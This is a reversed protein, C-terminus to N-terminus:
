KSFDVTGNTYNLTWNKTETNTGSTFSYTTFNNKSLTRYLLDPWLTQGKLTNAKNDYGGFIEEMTSTLDNIRSKKVTYIRQLNDNSDFTFERSIITYKFYQETKKLRKDHDYLYYMTDSNLLTTTADFTIKQTILGNKMLIERKGPRVDAGTLNDKSLV